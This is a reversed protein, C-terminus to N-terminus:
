PSRRSTEVQEAAEQIWPWISRRLAAITTGLDLPTSRSRSLYTEWAKTAAPEAPFSTDLVRPVKAPLRWAGAAVRWAIARPMGSFDMGTLHLLRFTDRLVRPRCAFGQDVLRVVLDAMVESAGCGMPRSSAMGGLTAAFPVDVPKGAVGSEPRVLITLGCPNSGLCAIVSHVVASSERHSDPLAHSVGMPEFTLGDGLDAACVAKLMEAAQGLTGPACRLEAEWEYPADGGCIAFLLLDGSLLLQSRVEPHAALRCVLREMCFWALTAGFQERRDRARRALAERIDDLQGTTM